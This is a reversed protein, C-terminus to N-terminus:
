PDLLVMWRKKYFYVFFTMMPTTSGSPCVEITRPATFQVMDQDSGLVANFDMMQKANTTHDDDDDGTTILATATTPKMFIYEPYKTLVTRIYKNLRGGMINM